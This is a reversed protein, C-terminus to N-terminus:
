QYTCGVNPTCKIRWDTPIQSPATKGSKGNYYICGVGPKCEIRSDNFFVPDCAPIRRQVKPSEDPSPRVPDLESMLLHAVVCSAEELSKEVLDPKVSLAQITYKHTLDSLNTVYEYNSWLVTSDKSRLTARITLLPRRLNQNGIPTSMGFGYMLVALELTADGGERIEFYNKENLYRRFTRLVIQDVKIGYEDMYAGFADDVNRPGTTSGSTLAQFLNGMMDVEGHVVPEDPISVNSDIEISRIKSLSEKSIYVNACGNLAISLGTVAIGAVAHHRIAWVVPALNWRKRIRVQDNM